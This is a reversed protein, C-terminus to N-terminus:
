QAAYRDLYSELRQVGALYGALVEGAAEGALRSEGRAHRVARVFPGADFGALAAVRESLAVNDTGPREDHLRLVARFLVMMTSLSAGILEAQRKGDIGALLVAQRLQLLKGMAQQELQLRLLDRSVAIGELPFAGHLVRHRELIDAYEMPFVDSSRRWEDVTMTMPPPNGADRWARAVSSAAALASQDIADLLLLVNYDSQKPIHEGAAASGYLVVSALHTGYAARLQTVLDDLTMTAM